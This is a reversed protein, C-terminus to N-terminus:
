IESGRGIVAQAKGMIWVLEGVLIIEEVVGESRDSVQILVLVLILVQIGVLVLSLIVVLVYVLVWVLIIEFLLIKDKGDIEFGPLDEKLFEGNVLCIILKENNSAVVSLCHKSDQFDIQSTWNVLEVYHFAIIEEGSLM